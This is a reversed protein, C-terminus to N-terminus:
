YSSSPSTFKATLASIARLLDEYRKANLAKEETLAQKAEAIEEKLLIQDQVQTDFTPMNSTSTISPVLGFPTQPGQKSVASSGKTVRFGCAILTSSRIEDSVQFGPRKQLPIGLEEFVLTLLFGDWMDHDKSM